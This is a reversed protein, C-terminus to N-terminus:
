RVRYFGVWAFILSESKMLDITIQESTSLVYKYLIHMWESDFRSGCHSHLPDQLPGGPSNIKGVENVVLKLAIQESKYSSETAVLRSARTCEAPLVQVAAASSYNKPDHSGDTYITSDSPRLERCYEDFKPKDAAVDVTKSHGYGCSISLNPLDAWPEISDPQLSNLPGM